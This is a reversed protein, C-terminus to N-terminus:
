IEEPTRLSRHETALEDIIVKVVDQDIAQTYNPYRALIKARISPRLLPTERSEPEHREAAAILLSLEWEIAFCVEEFAEVFITIQNVEKHYQEFNESWADTLLADLLGQARKPVPLRAERYYRLLKEIKEVLEIRQEVLWKPKIRSNLEFIRTAIETVIIQGKPSLENFLDGNQFVSIRERAQDISLQAMLYQAVDDTKWYKKLIEKDAVDMQDLLHLLTYINILDPPAQPFSANRESPALTKNLREVQTLLYVVSFFSNLSTFFKILADTSYERLV